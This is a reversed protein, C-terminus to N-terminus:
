VVCSSCPQGLPLSSGGMPRLVCGFVYRRSVHWCMPSLKPVGVCSDKCLTRSSGDNSSSDDGCSSSSVCMGTHTVAAGEAPIVCKDVLWCQAARGGKKASTM